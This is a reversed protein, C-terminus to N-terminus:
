IKNTNVIILTGDLVCLLFPCPAGKKMIPQSNEVQVIDILDLFKEKQLKTLLVLRPSKDFAWKIINRYRIIEMKEGLSKNISNRSLALCTVDEHAKVTCARKFKKFLCQEGFTDGAQLKRVEKGDKIVSVM